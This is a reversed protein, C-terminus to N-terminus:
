KIIEGLQHIQAANAWWVAVSAAWQAEGRGLALWYLARIAGLALLQGDRDVAGSLEQEAAAFHQQLRGVEVCQRALEDTLECVAQSM